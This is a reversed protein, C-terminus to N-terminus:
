SDDFKVLALVVWSLVIVTKIRDQEHAARPASTRPRIKNTPPGLRLIVCYPESVYENKVRTCSFINRAEKNTIQTRGRAGGGGGVGRRGEGECGKM